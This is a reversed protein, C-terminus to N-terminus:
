MMTKIATAPHRAQIPPIYRAFAERLSKVAYGKISRRSQGDYIHVDGSAIKFAKLRRALGNQTLPKGRNCEGWSREPMAVLAAVLDASPIGDDDGALRKEAFVDRIDMLLQTSYAEDETAGTQALAATKVREPWQGGALEAISFLPRWNDADRNFIAEPIEPDSRKAAAASDKAWRVAKRALTELNEVRDARFRSIPEGPLRRKLSIAISRDALTDPLKGIMAIAVPAFTAFMRVDHDDGHVRVVDDGRRHGSNLVARLDENQGPQGDKGFVADAEDILLTPQALEITRYVAAATISATKLPRWVLPKLVDMATTKGCRPVPSTIALRPSISFAELCHTHLVWLAITHADPEGLIVYKRVAAVVDDLLRTGNVPEPWPEPEFLELRRGQGPAGDNPREAAVLKDLISARVGLRAAVDKREREYEVPRLKALRAIEADVNIEGQDTEPGSGATREILAAREICARVAEPGAHQHLDNFDAAREPRTKGFDPVALFGGVAQVAERAYKLGPNGPTKVDDDACVVIQLGPFKGRLEKAVPPLNGANFGIAVAHGVSEFISAATAFGEVICLAGNPEGIIFHCGTVRGGLLFNKAGDQAIFQLSHLTGAADYAPVVLEGCHTRLGNPRVGKRVLYPHDSPAEAAGNWIKAARVRAGDRSKKEAADRKCKDDDMKRRNAAIEEATLERGVDARWTESVGGRWCGFAGAPIDGAHFVYWGADDGRRGDSSFRHLGGDTAIFEPPTLGAEAIAALFQDLATSM